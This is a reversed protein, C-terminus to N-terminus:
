LDVKVTSGDPGPTNALYDRIKERTDPKSPRCQSVKKAKGEVLAEAFGACGPFGCGGCNANPLMGTVTEIREDVAVYLFKDAVALLLGMLAAIVLVVGIAILVAIIDFEM